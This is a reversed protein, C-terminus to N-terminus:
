YHITFQKISIRSNWNISVCASKEDKNLSVTQVKDALDVFDRNVLAEPSHIWANQFRMNADGKSQKM